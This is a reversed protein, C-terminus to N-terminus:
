GGNRIQNLNSSLHVFDGAARGKLYEKSLPRVGGRHFSTNPFERNWTKQIADEKYIVIDTCSSSVEEKWRKYFERLREIIRDTMGLAFSNRVKQGASAYAAEMHRGIEDQCYDFFYLVLALDTPMGVFHMQRNKSDLDWDYYEMGRIAKCEFVPAIGWGLKYEWDYFKGYYYCEASEKIAEVNVGTKIKERLVTAEELQYKAMLKKAREMALKSEAETAGENNALTILKAITSKVSELKNREEATM